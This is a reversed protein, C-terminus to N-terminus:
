TTWAGEEKAVKRKNETISDKIQRAGRQSETKLRRATQLVASSINHQHTRVTQKLPGEKRDVYEVLKTIDKINNNNNNNHEIETAARNVVHTQPREIALIATQIGSSPM